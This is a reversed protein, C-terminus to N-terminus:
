LKNVQGVSAETNNKLYAVRTGGQSVASTSATRLDAHSRVEQQDKSLLLGGRVVWYLERGGGQCSM